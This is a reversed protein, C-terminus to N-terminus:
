SDSSRMVVVYREYEGFQEWTVRVKSMESFRPARFAMPDEVSIAAPGLRKL